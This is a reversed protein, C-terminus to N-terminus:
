LAVPPLNCATSKAVPPPPTPEPEPPPPSPHRDCAVLLAVAVAFLKVMSFRPEHFQSPCRRWGVKGQGNLKPPFKIFFIIIEATANAVIARPAPESASAFGYPVAPQPRPEITNPLEGPM